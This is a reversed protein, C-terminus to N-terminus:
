KNPQSAAPASDRTGLPPSFLSRYFDVDRQRRAEIVDKIRQVFGAPLLIRNFRAIPDDYVGRRADLRVNITKRSFPSCGTQLSV